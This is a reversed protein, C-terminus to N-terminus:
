KTQLKAKKKKTIRTKLKTCEKRLYEAHNGSEKKAVDFVSLAIEYEEKTEAAESLVSIRKWERTGMEKAIPIFKNFLHNKAYLSGLMTLANEAQYTLHHKILKERETQLLLEIEKIESKTLKSFMAPYVEDTVGYDEWIVYKILFVYLRM